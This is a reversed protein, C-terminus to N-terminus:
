SSLIYWMDGKERTANLAIQRSYASTTRAMKCNQLAAFSSSLGGADEVTRTSSVILVRAGAPAQESLLAPGDMVVVNTKASSNAVVTV